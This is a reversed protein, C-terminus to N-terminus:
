KKFRTAYRSLLYRYKFYTKMPLQSWLLDLGKKREEFEYNLLQLDNEYYNNILKKRERNYFLSYHDFIKLSKNIRTDFFKSPLNLDNIVNQLGERINEFKIVQNYAIHKNDLFFFTSQPYLHDGRYIINKKSNMVKQYPGTGQIFDNFSGYLNHMFSIYKYDSFARDYPNRVIIFKYYDNWQQKSIYGYDILQQPTAHQLHIKNKDCWGMLTTYNAKEWEGKQPRVEFAKEVSSGACKPIHIFIVKHKHDIM